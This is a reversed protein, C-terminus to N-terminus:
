AVPLRQGPRDHPRRPFEEARFRLILSTWSGPLRPPHPAVITYPKAYWLCGSWGPRGPAFLLKKVTLLVTMGCRYLDLCWKRLWFLANRIFLLARRSM